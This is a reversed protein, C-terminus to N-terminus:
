YKEFCNHGNSAKQRQKQAPGMIQNFTLMLKLYVEHIHRYYAWSLSGNTLYGCPLLYIGHFYVPTYLNARGNKVEASSTHSQQTESRLRKVGTFSGGTGM